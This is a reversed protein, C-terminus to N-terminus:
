AREKLAEALYESSHHGYVKEVTAVTDGLLKAVAYINVGDQLLHTARSHRLIHPNRKHGLGIAEMNKRFLRYWNVPAGFLWQNPTTMLLAEYSPRAFNSIPVVPRRKKSRRQNEDEDPGRLNVRSNQLDVQSRRLREVARRRSGTDYTIIIFHKLDGKANDIARRLEDKTLWENETIPDLVFTSPTEIVPMDNPLIRKWRMAHKAVAKLISLERSITGDCAARSHPTGTLSRQRRAEVYTRSAPIDISKLERDGFWAKLQGVVVLIRAKDVVKSAVHERCYDDIAQGVTIGSSGRPKGALVDHGEILFAAYRKQAEMQDTTRLSLRETRKRAEVYWCVYAIENRWELWPIDRRKRPM